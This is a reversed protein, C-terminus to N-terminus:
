RHGRAYDYASQIFAIRRPESTGALETIAKSLPHPSKIIAENRAHLARIEALTPMRAGKGGKGRNCGAHAVVLNWVANLDPGAWAPHNKMIHFPIVHDVDVGRQPLHEHCYFCRAHQFGILAERSRAVPARRVRDVVFVGDDSLAAGKSVLSRGIQSDFASEVLSWRARLEDDLSSALPDTAVQILPQTLQVLMTGRDKRIEYFQHPAQTPGPLNHFKQMVMGPMSRATAAILRETPQRAALTQPAERTLVTLYDEDGLSTGAGVQPSSAARQAMALAYPAALEDIPVSEQGQRALDLLAQGLAFKYTRTNRGWLIAM